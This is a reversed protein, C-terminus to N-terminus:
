HQQALKLHMSDGSFQRVLDHQNDIFQCLNNAKAFQDLRLHLFGLVVDVILESLCRSCQPQPGIQYLSLGKIRQYCCCIM